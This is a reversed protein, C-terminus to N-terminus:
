PWKKAGIYDYSEKILKKLVEVDIDELKNIYVCSKGTKYKGLKDFLKKYREHDGMIYLSIKAKRPSFGARVSDGERGSEYIYHYTGYGVINTGWLVPEEGTAEKFIENLVRAQDKRKIPEVSELFTNVDTKEPKTKNAKSM